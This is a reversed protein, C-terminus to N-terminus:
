KLMGVVSRRAVVFSSALLAIKIAEIFLESSCFLAQASCLGELFGSSNVFLSTYSYLSFDSRRAFFLSSNNFYSGLVPCCSNLGFIPGTGSSIDPYAPRLVVQSSLVSTNSFIMNLSSFSFLLRFSASSCAILFCIASRAAM